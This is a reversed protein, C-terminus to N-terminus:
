AVFLVLRQDVLADLEEEVAKLKVDAERLVTALTSTGDIRQLVRVIPSEPELVFEIQGDNALYWDGSADSLLLLGKASVPVATLDYNRGAEFIKQTEALLDSHVRLETRVTGTDMSELRPASTAMEALLGMNVIRMLLEVSPSDSTGEGFNNLGQRISDADLYTSAGPAALAREVLERGNSNMLRVLMGYAHHTGNGYFFPVKPREAIRRPVRSGVAERLIRKDWLLRPRLHEPISSTLEVIRHDLFPVRAEVGSGAATRDEHWVNYQQVKRYESLVYSAYLDTDQEAGQSNLVNDSLFAEGEGWWYRLGPMGDLRTTRNMGRLGSLFGAWDDGMGESYGGNFEDSAAGLLMGRLEPRVQRAFRHLEHKYYVEPGVMPSETLWVLRLWQEPTPTLGPEFLVQHNPIGWQDALWSSHEADGNARTGGSLATFTHLEEVQKRALALVISSDIGGSLFLGLESDATACDRISSELLDGYREIFGEASTSEDAATPLEWYRHEVTKGDRLDVRLVSAAPVSEVGEFWTCMQEASFRPAAAVTPVSLARAWAFRRPTAPDAFLGKIESSLVIRQDTRHYYLPKIGFRDRALVLQGRARDWLIIAFMGRVDRLFDLGHQRYLYLLVECDSGTKLRVDSPLGAALEKHNYVEGNAILVLNGDDSILPQTGDQPNVLSLRTFALGVPGSRLLEREDPGRHHLLEAFNNLLGDFEPGLDQGDLRAYGALGCM